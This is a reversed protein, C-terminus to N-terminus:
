GVLLFNFSLGAKSVRIRGHPLTKLHIKQIAVSRCSRDIIGKLNPVNLRCYRAGGKIWRAMCQNSFPFCRRDFKDYDLTFGIAIIINDKDLAAWYKMMLTLRIRLYM